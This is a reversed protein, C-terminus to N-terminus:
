ELYAQVIRRAAYFGLGAGISSLILSFWVGFPSGLWGGFGSGILLGVTTCLRNMEDKRAIGSNPEFRSVKRM